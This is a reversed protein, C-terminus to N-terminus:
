YIFPILKVSQKKYQDYEGFAHNLKKEEFEIKLLLDALLLIFVMLRLYTFYNILLSITFLIVALYMPHRIFRYPGKSILAAGDRVDPFISLKSTRMAVIAWMGLFFSFIETIFAFRNHVIFPGTFLFIGLCIFQVMVLLWSRFRM